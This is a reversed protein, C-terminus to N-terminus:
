VAQKLKEVEEILQGVTMSARVASDPIELDLSSELALALNLLDMSDLALDETLIDSDKIADADYGAAEAVIERVDAAITSAM